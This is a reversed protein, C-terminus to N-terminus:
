APLSQLAEWKNRFGAVDEEKLVGTRTGKDAVVSKPVVWFDPKGAADLAVFVHADVDKAPDTVFVYKDKRPAGAAKVEIRIEKDGPGVAVIDADGAAAQVTFGQQLLHAVTQFEANRANTEM